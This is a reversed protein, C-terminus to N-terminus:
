MHTHGAAHTLVHTYTHPLPTFLCMTPSTVSAFTFCRNCDIGGPHTHTHTYAPPLVGGGEAERKSVGNGWKNALSPHGWVSEWVCMCVCVASLLVQSIPQLSLRGSHSAKQVARGPSEPSQAHTYAHEYTMQHTHIDAHTHIPAGQTVRNCCWRTQGLTM